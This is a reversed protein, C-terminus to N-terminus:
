TTSIDNLDVIRVPTSDPATKRQGYNHLRMLIRYCDKDRWAPALLQLGHSFWACCGGLICFFVFM